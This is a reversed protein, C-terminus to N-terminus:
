LGNKNYQEEIKKIIEPNDKNYKILENKEKERREKVTPKQELEKNCQKCIKMRHGSMHGPAWMHEYWNSKKHPCNRQLVKVKEEFERKIQTYTTM